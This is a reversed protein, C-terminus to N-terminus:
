TTIAQTASQKHRQIPCTQQRFLVNQRCRKYVKMVNSARCDHADAHRLNGYRVRHMAGVIRADREGEDTLVHALWPRRAAIDGIKRWM